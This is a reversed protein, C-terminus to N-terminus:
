RRRTTLWGDDGPLDAHADLGRRATATATHGSADGRRLVGCGLLDHQGAALCSQRGPLAAAPLLAAAADSQGRAARDARLRHRRDAGRRLRRPPLPATPQAAGEILAVSFAGLTVFAIATGWLDPRRDRARPTEPVLLWTLALALAPLALPVVFLWRWSLLEVLAGSAFPGIAPVAAVLGLFRGVASSRGEVPSLSTVLALGAALLMAAGIGQVFRGAVIMWVVPASACLVAGTSFTLIGGVFVRRHGVIDGIAGAALVCSVLSVYYVNLIWQADTVTAELDRAVSPLALNLMDDSMYALATGLVAALLVVRATSSSVGFSRSREARAADATQM